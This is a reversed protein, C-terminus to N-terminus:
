PTPAAGLGRRIDGALHGSFLWPGCPPDIIPKGVENPSAPRDSM